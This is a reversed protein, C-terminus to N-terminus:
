RSHGMNNIYKEAWQAAQRVTSRQDQELRKIVPLTSPDKYDALGVIANKQLISRGVWEASTPGIIEIYKKLDMYILEILDPFPEFIDPIFAKEGIKPAAKNYPCVDQCTDCGYIRGKMVPLVWEPPLESIQTLFSLCIRTNLMYPEVLAHTPCAEICEECEGCNEDLPVDPELRKDILIEGLFVFSGVGPVILTNNKGIWGLGARWAFGRELLPGTDVMLKYRLDPFFDRLFQVLRTMKETVVVHYDRGWGVRALQGHFKGKEPQSHDVNYPIALSIISKVGSFSQRPDFRLQLNKQEFGPLPNKGGTLYKNEIRKKYIATAYNDLPEPGTVGLSAIGIEKAYSKLENKYSVM